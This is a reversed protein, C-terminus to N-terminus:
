FLSDQIRYADYFLDPRYEKLLSFSLGALLFIAFLVTMVSSAISPAMYVEDYSENLEQLRDSFISNYTLAVDNKSQVESMDSREDVGLARAIVSRPEDESIRELDFDERTKEVVQLTGSSQIQQWDTNEAVTSPEIAISDIIDFAEKSWVGDESLLSEVFDIDPIMESAQQYRDEPNRAMAKLVLDSLCHPCDKREEYLPTPDEKLRMTMTDIVSKGRFPAVSAIMEYALIGLAYIDSRQDVHSSELYEPSVYDITGLVGGQQTLQPVADMRAIGFDTIKIDGASTILINEPKLDRHIIGSEHIAQLGEVIQRLFRLIESNLYSKPERFVNRWTEGLSM